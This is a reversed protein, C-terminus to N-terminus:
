PFPSSSYSMNLILNYNLFLRKVFQLVAKENIKIGIM